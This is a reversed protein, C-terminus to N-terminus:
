TVSRDQGIARVVDLAVAEVPQLGDVTRLINRSRYYDVLPATQENYADIRLKLTEHNDDVRVAGGQERAERARAEIRDLLVTEDAQLEVVHDIALGETDLLDDFRVAQAMTRPFGDLVFGREADAQSIREIVAAIVLQDPVLGGSVMIDKVKRGIGTDADVAARLMDGTSLHPIDYEEVLRRAQTGKGAGPPGLLVIRM